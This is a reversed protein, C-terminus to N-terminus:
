FAQVAKFQIRYLKDPAIDWEFDNTMLRFAGMANTMVIPTGDPPQERLTPFVDINCNGNADADEAGLAMYLNNGVQMWDQAKVINPTNITWGRTALVSGVQAAGNVVPAGTAVGRPVRGATDGLMFKKGVGKRSVMFAIIEAADDRALPPYTIDAELWHGPWEYSQQQGTFPSANIASAARSRLTIHAPAKTTPLIPIVEVIIPM